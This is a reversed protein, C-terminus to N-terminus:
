TLASLLAQMPLRHLPQHMAHHPLHYVAHQFLSHIDQLPVGRSFKPSLADHLRLPIDTNHNLHPHHHCLHLHHRRSQLDTRTRPWNFVLFMVILLHSCVEMAAEAERWREANREARLALIKSTQDEGQDDDDTDNNIHKRKRRLSPLQSCSIDFTLVILFCCFYFVQNSIEVYRHGM